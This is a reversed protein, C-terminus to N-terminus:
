LVPSKVLSPCRMSIEKLSPFRGGSPVAAAVGEAMGQLLAVLDPSSLVGFDLGSVLPLFGTVGAMGIGEGLCRAIELGMNLFGMYDISIKKAGQMIGKKMAMVLGRVGVYSDGRRCFRVDSDVHQSLGGGEVFGEGLAEGIQDFPWWLYLHRLSPINESSLSRGLARTAGWAGENSDIRFKLELSKLVPLIERSRELVGALTGVGEGRDDTWELSLSELFLLKGSGLGSGLACAVHSGVMTDGFRLKQLRSVKGDRMAEGLIKAGRNEVFNGRLDLNEILPAKGERLPVLLGEMGEAHFECSKVNLSRLESLHGTGMAKGLAKGGEVGGSGFGLDLVQLGTCAGGGLAESLARMGAVLVRCGGLHLSRLKPVKGASIADACVGAGGDEIDNLSLNLHELALLEGSCLLHELARVVRDTQDEGEAAEALGAAGEEPGQAGALGAAGGEEAGEQAGAHGAAGGEPAGGNEVGEGNPLIDNQQLELSRLSPVAGSAVGEAVGQLGGLRISNDSLDLTELFFLIGGKMADGLARAGERGAKTNRMKLSQLKCSSGPGGGALAKMLADVGAPGLPCNNVDLHLLSCLRGTLAAQRLSERGQTEFVKVSVVLTEISPPVWRLLRWLVDADKFELRKLRVANDGQGGGGAGQGVGWAIFFGELVDLSAESSTRQGLCLGETSAPLSSLLISLKGSSLSFGSSIDINSLRTPVHGKKIFLLISCAAGFSDRCSLLDSLDQASVTNHNFLSSLANVMEQSSRELDEPVQVCKDGCRAGEGHGSLGNM